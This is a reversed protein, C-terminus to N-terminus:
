PHLVSVTYSVPATLQGVDFVLLCFSPGTTTATGVLQPPPTGPDVVRSQLAACAGASSTTGIGVGITAPPDVSTVSVEVAGIAHVTLPAPNSGGVVLTGQYTDTITPAVPTPAAPAAPDSCAGAWLALGAIIAAFRSRM